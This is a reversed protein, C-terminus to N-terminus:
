DQPLPDRGDPAESCYEDIFRYTSALFETADAEADELGLRTIPGNVIVTTVAPTGGAIVDVFHGLHNSVPDEAPELGYLHFYAILLNPVKTYDEVVHIPLETGDVDITKVRHREGDISDSILNVPRSALYLLDHSRVVRYTFPAEESLPNDFNGEAWLLTEHLGSSPRTMLHRAGPILTTAALAGPRLCPDVHRPNESIFGVGAAAGMLLLLLSRRYRTSLM